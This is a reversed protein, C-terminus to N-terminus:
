RENGLLFNKIKQKENEQLSNAKKTIEADKVSTFKLGDKLINDSFDSDSSAKDSKRKIYNMLNKSFNIYYDKNKYNQEIIQEIKLNKDCEFDECIFDRITDSNMVFLDYGYNSKNNSKLSSFNNIVNHKKNALNNNVQNKNLDSDSNELLPYYLTILPLISNMDFLKFKLYVETPLGVTLGNEEMFYEFKTYNLHENLYDTINTKLQEQKIDGLTITYNYDYPEQDTCNISVNFSLYSQLNTRDLYYVNPNNKYEFYFTNKNSLLNIKNEQTNNKVFLSKLKCNFPVELECEMGRLNKPCICIDASLDKARCNKLNFLSENKQIEEFDKKSIM